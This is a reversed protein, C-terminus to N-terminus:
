PQKSFSFPVKKESSYFGGNTDKQDCPHYVVCKETPFVGRQAILDIHAEVTCDLISGDSLTLWVHAQFPEQTAPSKLEQRLIDYSTKCYTYDPWHKDGITIHSNISLQEKLVKQLLMHVPVCKEALDSSRKLNNSNLVDICFRMVDLSKKKHLKRSFPLPSYGVELGLELTKEYADIFRTKYNM